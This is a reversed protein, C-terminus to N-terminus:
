ARSMGFFITNISSNWLNKESAIGWYKSEKYYKWPYLQFNKGLTAQPSRGLIGDPIEWPIEIFFIEILRQLTGKPVEKQFEQLSKMQLKTLSERPIKKGSVNPWKEFSYKKLLKKLFENMSYENRIKNLIEEPVKLHIEPIQLSKKCLNTLFLEPFYRWFNQQFKRWANRRLGEHVDWFVWFYPTYNWWINGVTANEIFDYM